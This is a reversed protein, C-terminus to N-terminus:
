KVFDDIAFQVLGMILFSYPPDNATTGHEYYAPIHKLNTASMRKLYLSESTLAQFPGSTSEFKIVVQKKTRLNQYLCALGYTGRGLEKIFKYDYKVIDPPNIGLKDTESIM